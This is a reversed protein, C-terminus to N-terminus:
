EGVVLTRLVRAPNGVALSDSPIDHVVVSGAGIVVRDGITVGPVVTCNGGFWCDEGITIPKSYELLTNREEVDTPHVACYFSCNPGVLTRNGIKIVGCDVFTTNYNFFVEEGLHLNYGYECRMPPEIFISGAKNPMIKALLENRKDMETPLSNNLEAVLTRVSKRDTALEESTSDYIKGAIMKARDTEM